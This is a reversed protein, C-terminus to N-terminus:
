IRMYNRWIEMHLSSVTKLIGVLNASSLKPAYSFTQQWLHPCNECARRVVTGMVPPFDRGDADTHLKHHEEIRKVEDYCELYHAFESRYSM